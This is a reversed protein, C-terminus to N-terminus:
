RAPVIDIPITYDDLNVKAHGDRKYTPGGEIKIYYDDRSCPRPLNPLGVGIYSNTPMHIAPFNTLIGNVSATRCIGTRALQEGNKFLCVSFDWSKDEPPSYAMMSIKLRNNTIDLYGYITFSGHIGLGETKTYSFELHKFSKQITYKFRQNKCWEDGMNNNLENNLEYQLVKRRADDYLRKKSVKDYGTEKILQKEVQSIIKEQIKTKLIDRYSYVIMRRDKLVYNFYNKNSQIQNNTPAILATILSSPGAKRIKFGHRCTMRSFLRIIQKRFKKKTKDNFLQGDVDMGLKQIYYNEFQKVFDGIKDFIRAGNAIVLTIKHDTNIETIELTDTDLLGPLNPEDLISLQSKSKSWSFNNLNPGKTFLKNCLANKLQLLTSIRLEQDFTFELITDNYYKKYADEVGDVLKELDLVGNEDYEMPLSIRASMNKPLLQVIGEIFNIKSEKIDLDINIM